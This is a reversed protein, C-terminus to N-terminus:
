DWVNAATATSALIAARRIRGLNLSTGAAASTHIDVNIRITEKIAIIELSSALTQLHQYNRM